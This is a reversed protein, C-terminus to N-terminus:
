LSNSRHNLQDRVHRWHHWRWRLGL